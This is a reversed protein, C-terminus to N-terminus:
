ILWLPCVKELFDVFGRTLFIYVKLSDLICVYRKFYIYLRLFRSNLSLQTTIRHRNISICCIKFIVLKLFANNLKLSFIEMNVDNINIIPYIILKISTNLRLNIARIFKTVFRALFSKIFKIAYM